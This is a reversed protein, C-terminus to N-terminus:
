GGPHHPPVCRSPRLGYASSSRGRSTPRARLVQSAASCRRAVPQPPPPPFPGPWPSCPGAFRAGSGTGSLRALHAPAHVRLQFTKADSGLTPARHPLEARRSRRPPRGLGALRPGDRGCCVEDDGAASHCRYRSRSLLSARRSPRHPTPTGCYSRRRPPVPGLSGASCLAAGGRLATPPFSAPADYGNRREGHSRRIATAASVLRRSPANHLSAHQAVNHLQAVFLRIRSDHM